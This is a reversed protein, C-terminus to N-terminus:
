SCKYFFSCHADYEHLFVSHKGELILFLCVHLHRSYVDSTKLLTSSTSAWAIFCSLSILPFNLEGKRLPSIVNNKNASSMVTQTDFGLFDIFLRRSLETLTALYWILM